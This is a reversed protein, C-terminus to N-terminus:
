RICHPSHTTHQAPRSNLSFLSSLFLFCGLRVWKSIIFKDRNENHSFSFMGFARMQQHHIQRPKRQTFWKKRTLLFFFSYGPGSFGFIDLIWFTWFLFHGYGAGLHMQHHEEMLVAQTHPHRRRESPSTWCMVRSYLSHDTGLHFFFFFHFM